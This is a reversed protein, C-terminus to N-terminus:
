TTTFKDLATNLINITKIQNDQEQEERRRRRRKRRGQQLTIARHL